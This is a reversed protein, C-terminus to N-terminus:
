ETPMIASIFSGIGVGVMVCSFVRTPGDFGAHKFCVWAVIELSLASYMMFLFRPSNQKPRDSM